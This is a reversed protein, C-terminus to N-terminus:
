AALELLSGSLLRARIRDGPHVALKPVLEDCAYVELFPIDGSDGRRAVIGVAREKLIIPVFHWAHPPIKVVWPEPLTVAADAYLNMSGKFLGAPCGLLPGLVSNLQTLHLAGEQRGRRYEVTLSIGGDPLPPVGALWSAASM